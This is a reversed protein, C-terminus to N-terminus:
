LNSNWNEWNIGKSHGTGSVVSDSRFPWSVLIPLEEIMKLETEINNENYVVTPWVSDNEEEIYEEKVYDSDPEPVPMNEVLLAV